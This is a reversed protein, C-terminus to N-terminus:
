PRDQFPRPMTSGRWGVLGAGVIVVGAPRWVLVGGFNDWRQGGSVQVVGYGLAHSVIEEDVHINGPGVLLLRIKRRSGNHPSHHKIWWWSNM